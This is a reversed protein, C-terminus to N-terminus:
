PLRLAELDLLSPFTFYFANFLGAQASYAIGSPVGSLKYNVMMADKVHMKM